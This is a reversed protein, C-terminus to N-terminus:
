GGIAKEIDVGTIAGVKPMTVRQPKATKTSKKTPKRIM